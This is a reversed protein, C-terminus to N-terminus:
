MADDSDGAATRLREAARAVQEPDCDVGIFPYGRRAAVVGSTGTGVMPDVVLGGPRVLELCKEAWTEAQTWEHQSKDPRANRFSDRVM